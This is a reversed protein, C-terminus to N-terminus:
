IDGFRRYSGNVVAGECGEGSLGSIVVEGGPFAAAHIARGDVRGELLDPALHRLDVRRECIVAEADDAEAVSLAMRVTEGHREFGVICQHDRGCDGIWDGDFRDDAAAPSSPIAMLVIASAIRFSM